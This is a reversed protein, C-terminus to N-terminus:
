CRLSTEAALLAREHREEEAVLRRYFEREGDCSAQALRERYFVLGKKELEIAKALAARLDADAPLGQARSAEAEFGDPSASKRAIMSVTSPWGPKDKLEEYIERVRQIHGIEETALSRFLAKALPNALREATQLYYDRGDSEFRIAQELAILSADSM